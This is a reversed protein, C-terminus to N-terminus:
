KKIALFDKLGHVVNVNNHENLISTFESKNSNSKNTVPSEYTYLDSLSSSNNNNRKSRSKRSKRNKRKKVTKILHKKDKRSLKNTTM